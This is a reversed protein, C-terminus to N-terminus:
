VKLGNVVGDGLKSHQVGVFELLECPMAERFPRGREEVSLGLGQEEGNDDGGCGRALNFRSEFERVDVSRDAASWSRSIM